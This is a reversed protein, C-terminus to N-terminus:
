RDAFKQIDSEFFLVPQQGHLQFVITRVETDLAFKQGDLMKKFWVHVTRKSFCKEGAYQNFRLTLGIQM